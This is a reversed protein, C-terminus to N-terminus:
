EQFLKALEDTVKEMDKDEKVKMKVLVARYEPDDLFARRFLPDNEVDIEKRSNKKSSQKRCRM